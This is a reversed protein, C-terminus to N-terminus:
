RINQHKVIPEINTAQMTVYDHEDSIIKVRNFSYLPYRKLRCLLLFSYGNLTIDRLFHTEILLPVPNSYIGTSCLVASQKIWENNVHKCINQNTIGPLTLLSPLFGRMIHLLVKSSMGDICVPSLHLRFLKLISLTLKDGILDYTLETTLFNIELMFM